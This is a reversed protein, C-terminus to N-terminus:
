NGRDEIIICLSGPISLRSTVLNEPDWHGQIPCYDYPILGRSMNAIALSM